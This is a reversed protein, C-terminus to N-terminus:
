DEVELNVYVLTAISVITINIDCVVTEKNDLAVLFSTLYFM